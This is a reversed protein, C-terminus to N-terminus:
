LMQACSHGLHSSHAASSTPWSTAPVIVRAALSRSANRCRGTGACALLNNGTAGEECQLDMGHSCAHDPVGTANQERGTRVSPAPRHRHGDDHGVVCGVVALHDSGEETRHRVRDDDYVFSFIALLGQREHWTLPGVEYDCVQDHGAEVPTSSVRRM